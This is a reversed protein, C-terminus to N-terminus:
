FPEETIGLAMLARERDWEALTPPEVAQGETQALVFWNPRYVFRTFTAEDETGDPQEVARKCTVPMCLVIAREGKRVYRGKDKWGMFTSIPGPAIGREACQVLALIQNGISYGHFASYAKSITGPESVAKSLLDAFTAPVTAMP